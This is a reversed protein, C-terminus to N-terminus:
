DMIVEMHEIWVTRDYTDNSKIQIGFEEKLVSLNVFIPQFLFPQDKTYTGVKDDGNYFDFSFPADVFTCLNGNNYNDTGIFFWNGNANVIDGLQPINDFEQRTYLLKGGDNEANGIGCQLTRPFNITNNNGITLKTGRVGTSTNYGFAGFWVYFNNADIARMMIQGSYGNNGDTNYT